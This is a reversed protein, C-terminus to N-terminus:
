KKGGGYKPAETSKPSAPSESAKSAETSKTAETSKEKDMSIPAATGTTAWTAQPREVAKVADVIDFYTQKQNLKGNTAAAALKEHAVCFRAVSDRGEQTSNELHHPFFNHYFNQSMQMM